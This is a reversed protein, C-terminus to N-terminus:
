ELALKIYYPFCLVDTINLVGIAMDNCMCIYRSSSFNENADSSEVSISESSSATLSVAWKVPHKPPALKSTTSEIREMLAKFRGSRLDKSKLRADM